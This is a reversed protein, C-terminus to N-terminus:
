KSRERARCIGRRVLRFWARAPESTLRPHWTMFYPFAGIERPPEIMRVGAIGAHVDRMISMM